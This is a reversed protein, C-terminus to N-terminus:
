DRVQDRLQGSQYEAVSYQDGDPFREKYEEYAALAEQLRGRAAEARGLGILADGLQPDTEYAREFQEVAEASRDANQYAWGMGVMAEAHEPNQELLHGFRDMAQQANGRDLSRRGAALMEAETPEAREEAVERSEERATDRGEEILQSARGTVQARQRREKKASAQQLGSALEAELEGVAREVPDPEDATMEGIAEGGWDEAVDEVMREVHDFQWVVGAGAVILVAVVVLPWRRSGERTENLEPGTQTGHELEGLTWDDSGPEPKVGDSPEEGYRDEELQVEPEVSRDDECPEPGAQPSRGSPEGSEPTGRTERPTSESSGTGSERQTAASSGPTRARAEVNRDTSPQQEGTQAELEVSSDRSATTKPEEPASEDRDRGGHEGSEVRGAVTGQPQEDASESGSLDAISEVVQFIPAFEGIEGLRKWQNGTRSIEDTADVNGEMIWEHLTDFGTFYLFEGSGSQRVMWRHQSESKVGVHRELRFLHGCQSCKLTAGDADLQDEDLEYVTECQPCSVDM